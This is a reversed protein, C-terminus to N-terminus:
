ISKSELLKNYSCDINLFKLHALPDLASYVMKDIFVSSKFKEKLRFWNLYNQLYRTAVGHLKKDIWDKMRSHASNVHQIHYIKQKVHQKLDARLVHHELNNDIAFGKYSVHGDSCLVTQNSVKEGIANEIDKKTIRGFCAVRLDINKERDITVITAVHENNIGRKSSKKGRKRAKREMSPSGKLSHLFFTEDSETIGKFDAQEIPNLSATIKHRWDFATKKNIGLKIRTKELSLGEKMQKLYPVLLEKKNIKALWTGTYSNFHRKCSKCLYRQVRSKERGDKSYKLSGCHPCSGQKNNLQDERISLLNFDSSDKIMTLEDLISTQATSDLDKFYAKISDINM